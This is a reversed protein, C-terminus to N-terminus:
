TDEERFIENEEVFGASGGEKITVQEGTNPDILTTITNDLPQSAPIQATTSDVAAPLGGFRKYYEERLSNYQDQMESALPITHEFEFEEEEDVVGIENYMKDINSMMDLALKGLEEPDKNGISELLRKSFVKRSVLKTM